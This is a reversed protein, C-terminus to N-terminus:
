RNLWIGEEKSFWDWHKDIFERVPLVDYQTDFEKFFVFIDLQENIIFYIDDRKKELQFIFINGKDWIYNRLADSRAKLINTITYNNRIECYEEYSKNEYFMKKLQKEYYKKDFKKPKMFKMYEYPFVAVTKEKSHVSIYGKPIPKHRHFDRNNNILKQKYVSIESYELKKLFSGDIFEEKSIPAIAQTNFITILKLTTDKKSFWQSCKYKRQIVKNLLNYDSQNQIPLDSFQSFIPIQLFLLLLLLAIKNTKM